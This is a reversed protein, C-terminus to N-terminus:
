EHKQSIEKQYIVFTHLGLYIFFILTSIGYLVYYIIMPPDVVYEILTCTLVPISVAIMIRLWNWFPYKRKPYRIYIGLNFLSIVVLYYPFLALSWAGIFYFMTITYIFSIGYLVLVCVLGVIFYTDYDGRM